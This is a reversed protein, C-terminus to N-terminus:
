AKKAIKKTAKKVAKNAKKASKFYGIHRSGVPPKKTLQAKFKGAGRDWTVGVFKSAEDYKDEDVNSEGGYVETEEVTGFDNSDGLVELVEYKCCRGKTNNYDTPISVVDAPNIKLAVVVNSSGWGFNAMYERSAFHLGASCTRNSDDDVETRPMELVQGVSNDMTGSWIDKFDSKVKKYAIFYGDETIPLNGYELFGYLEQRARYSPNEMLNELFALLPKITFGEKQMKVIKQTLYSEIPKGKYSIVGNAFTVFGKGYEEISRKVDLLKLVKQEDNEKIAEIIQTFRPHSENITKQQGDIFLSVSKNTYIYTM